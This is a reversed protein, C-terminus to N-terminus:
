FGKPATYYNGNKSWFQLDGNSAIIYYEGREKGGEDYYRIQGNIENSSLKVDGGSGDSFLTKMMVQNGKKYITAKYEYGWNVLWKGILEGDVQLETKKLDNHAAKESGLFSIELDPDYNSTAWYAGHEEGKIRYGIFTREFGDKYIKEALVKLTSEDVREPLLVEVTRKIDRKSEDEIIKYDISDPINQNDINAPTNKPAMIGIAIFIVFAPIIYTLFVKTRTQQKVLSPKILGLVGVVMLLVFGISLGILLVEM